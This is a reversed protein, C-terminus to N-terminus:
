DDAKGRKLEKISVYNPCKEPDCYSYGLVCGVDMFLEDLRNEGWNVCDTLPEENEM